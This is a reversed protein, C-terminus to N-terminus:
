GQSVWGRLDPDHIEKGAIIDAIEQRRDGALGVRPEHGGHTEEILLGCDRLAEAARLALGVDAGDFGRATSRKETRAPWYKGMAALKELIRRVVRQRREPEGAGGPTIAESLAHDSRASSAHVTGLAPLVEEDIQGEDCPIGRLACRVVVDLPTTELRDAADRLTLTM